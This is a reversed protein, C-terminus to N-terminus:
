RSNQNNQYYQNSYNKKKKQGPVIEGAYRPQGLSEFYIKGGGNAELDYAIDRLDLTARSIENKIIDSDSEQRDSRTYQEHLRNGVTNKWEGIMCEYLIQLNKPGLDMLKTQDTAQLGTRQLFIAQEEPLNLGKGQEPGEKLLQSIPKDCYEKYLGYFETLADASAIVEVADPYGTQPNVNRVTKHMYDKIGAYAQKFSIYRYDKPADEYDSELSIITDRLRNDMSDFDINQEKLQRRLRNAMRKKYKLLDQQSLSDQAVGMMKKVHHENLNFGEPIIGFRACSERFKSKDGDQMPMEFRISTFGQGKMTSVLEDAYSGDITKNEPTGWSFSMKGNKDVNFRLEIEYTNSKRGKNTKGDEKRDGEKAYLRFVIEGRWSYDSFFTSNEKKGLRKMFGEMAGKVKKLDPSETETAKAKQQKQAALKEREQKIYADREEEPLLAAEQQIREEDANAAAVEDDLRETTDDNTNHNSAHGDSNEYDRIAQNLDQAFEQDIDAPFDIHLDNMWCFKALERYKEPSLSAGDPLIKVEGNCVAMTLNSPQIKKLVAWVREDDGIKQVRIDVDAGQSEAKEIMGYLRAFDRGGAAFAQEYQSQKNAPLSKEALIEQINQPSYEDPAPQYNEDRWTNFTFGLKKNEAM